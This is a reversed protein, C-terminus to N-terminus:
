AWMVAYPVPVLGCLTPHGVSFLGCVRNQGFVALACIILRARTFNVRKEFLYIFCELDWVAVARAM